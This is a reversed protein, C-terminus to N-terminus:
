ESAKRFPVRVTLLPVGETVRADDCFGDVGAADTVNVAVSEAAAVPVTVKM